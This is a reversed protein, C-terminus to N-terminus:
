NNNLNSYYEYLKDGTEITEKKDLYNDRFNEWWTCFDIAADSYETYNETISKNTSFIMIPAETPYMRLLITYNDPIIGTNYYIRLLTMGYSNKTTAFEDNGEYYDFWYPNYNHTYYEHFMELSDFFSQEYVLTNDVITLKGDFYPITDFEENCVIEPNKSGFIEMEFTNCFPCNFLTSISNNWFKDEDDYSGVHNVFHENYKEELTGSIDSKREPITVYVSTDYKSTPKKEPEQPTNSPTDVSTVDSTSSTDGSVSTTPTDNQTTDVVSTNSTNSTNSTTPETTKSSCGVLTLILTVSLIIALIKKKM